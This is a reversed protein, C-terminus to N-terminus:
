AFKDNLYVKKYKFILFYDLEEHDFEFGQSALELKNFLFDQILDPNSYKSVLFQRSLTLYPDDIRCNISIFPHILFIDENRINCIFNQIQDLNLGWIKYYYYKESKDINIRRDIDVLFTINKSSLQKIIVNLNNM